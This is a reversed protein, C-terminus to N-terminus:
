EARYCAFYCMISVDQYYGGDNLDAFNTAAAAYAGISELLVLGFKLSSVGKRTVSQVNHIEFIKQMPIQEDRNNKFQLVAILPCTSKKFEDFEDAVKKLNKESFSKVSSNLISIPRQKLDSFYATMKHSSKKHTRMQGSFSILGLRGGRLNTNNRNTFPPVRM